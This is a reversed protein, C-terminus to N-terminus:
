RPWKQAREQYIFTDRLLVGTTTYDPNQWVSGEDGEMRVIWSRPIRIPNTCYHEVWDRAIFGEESDVDEMIRSLAKPVSESVYKSDVGPYINFSFYNEFDGLAEYGGLPFRILWNDPSHARRKMLYEYLMFHGHAVGLTPRIPYRNSLSITIGRDGNNMFGYSDNRPNRNEYTIYRRLGNLESPEEPLDCIAVKYEQGNDYLQWGISASGINKLMEASVASITPLGDVHFGEVFTPDYEKLLKGGPLILRETVM